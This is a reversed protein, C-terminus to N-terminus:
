SRMTATTSATHHTNCLVHLDLKSSKETFQTFQLRDKVRACTMVDSVDVQSGFEMVFMVYPTISVKEKRM